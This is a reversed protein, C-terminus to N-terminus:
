KVIWPFLAEKGDSSASGFLRSHVVRDSQRQPCLEICLNIRGWDPKM